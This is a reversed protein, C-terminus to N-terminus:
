PRSAFADLAPRASVASGNREFLSMPAWGPLALDPAWPRIGSLVRETRGWTVLDRVFGAQGEVSLPYGPVPDNWAFVGSMRGSPYGFEAVFVPRGIARQVAVAM